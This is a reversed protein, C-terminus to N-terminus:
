GSHERYPELIAGTNYVISLIVSLWREVDTRMMSLTAILSFLIALGYALLRAGCILLYKEITDENQKFWEKWRFMTKESPYNEYGLDDSDIVNDIVDTIIDVNYHKYPALFDPLARHMRQVTCDSCKWVEIQYWQMTGGALKEHRHAHQAFEMPKGCFPCIPIEKSVVLFPPKRYQTYSRVKIYYVHRKLRATSYSM